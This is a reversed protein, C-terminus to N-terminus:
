IDQDAADSCHSKNMGNYCLEAGDPSKYREEISICKQAIVVTALVFVVFVFFIVGRVTLVAWKTKM